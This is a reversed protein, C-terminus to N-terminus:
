LAQIVHILHVDDVDEVVVHAQLIEALPGLDPALCEVAHLDGVQEFVIAIRALDHAHQLLDLPDVAQLVQFQHALM